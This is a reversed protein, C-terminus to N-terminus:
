SDFDQETVEEFPGFHEIGANSVLVDLKGFHKVTKAVLQESQAVQSM